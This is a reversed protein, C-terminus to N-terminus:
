AAVAASAAHEARRRAVGTALRLLALCLPCRCTTQDM